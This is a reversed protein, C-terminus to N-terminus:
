DDTKAKAIAAQLKGVISLPGLYRLDAEHHQFTIVAEECVALLDDRQEEALFARDIWDDRTQKLGALEDFVVGDAKDLM